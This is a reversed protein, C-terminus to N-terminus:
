VIVLSLRVFTSSYRTVLVGPCSGVMLGSIADPVFIYKSDYPTIFM